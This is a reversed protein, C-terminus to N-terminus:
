VRDHESVQHFSPQISLLQNFPISIKTCPCEATDPYDVLLQQAIFLTPNPVTQTIVRTEVLTYISLIILVIMLLCVYLRTAFRNLSEAKARDM